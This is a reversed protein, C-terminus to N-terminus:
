MWDVHPNPIGSPGSYVNLKYLEAVVGWRVVASQKGARVIRPLLEQAITDVIGCDYQNFNTSFQHAELKGAKCITEDLVDKGCSDSLLPNV